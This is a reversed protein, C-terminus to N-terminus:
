KQEGCDQREDTFDGCDNYGDCILNKTVCRGNECRLEENKCDRITDGVSIAYM